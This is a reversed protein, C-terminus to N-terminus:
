ALGERLVIVDDREPGVSIIYTDLNLEREIFSLYDRAPQPLQELRRTDRLPEKWGPLEQYIPESKDLEDIPLVDSRGAPTQYGICVKLTDLGSLVDLKTIVLGDLGNVRRAYRLAAVDLWGTRRPRGTVSGFEGGANRLAEAEAGELETPFPGEGVRTCYAKTIGLVRDIRSPGIGAGTTAGGAVASSSTVFPYTGHDIDLLTGQAGEFLVHKGAALLSEIRASTDDLLPVLWEAQKSLDQLLADRAPSDTGLAPKWHALAEDVRRALVAADRLDGARVGRRAAKDEYCPGIGKKTTGIRTGQGAERGADVLIHYPLILHALPSISLRSRLELGRAEL